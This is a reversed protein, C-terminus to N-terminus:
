APSPPPPLRDLSIGFEDRYVALAEEASLTREERGAATTRILRDGSLTIRGEASLRSCTTSRTFHSKPSTQHYWCAPGFDAIEYPRQDLRYEPGDPGTVDLDPPQPPQTPDAHETVAFAGEPDHQAEATDLRLPHRAFRGFGVDVLWPVGDLRVRLAMHDFPFGHRRGGWTRASHLTVQFGLDRLLLAFAGNLEYCFGGRRRTVIKDLLGEDDLRVPEGLHISLNEFPVAALHALQLGRLAALGPREPRPVGIRALYDDV